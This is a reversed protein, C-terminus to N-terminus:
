RSCVGVRPLGRTTPSRGEPWYVSRRMSELDVIDGILYLVDADHHRLFDILLGARCARTGLHVDSM